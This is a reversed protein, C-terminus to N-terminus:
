AEGGKPAARSARGAEATFMGNAALKALTAGDSVDVPEGQNFTIGFVTCVVDETPDESGIYTVLAM